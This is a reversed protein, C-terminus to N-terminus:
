LKHEEWLKNYTDQILKCGQETRGNPFKPHNKCYEDYVKITDLIQLFLEQTHHQGSYLEDAFRLINMRARVAKDEEVNSELRDVKSAIEDLKTEIDGIIMKRIARALASWPNIKIPAIQILTVAGVVTIEPHSTIFRLLTEWM